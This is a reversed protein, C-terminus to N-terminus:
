ITAPQQVGIDEVDKIESRTVRLKSVAEEETAGAEWMEPHGSVWAIWDHLRKKTSIKHSKHTM